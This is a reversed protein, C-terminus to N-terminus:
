NLDGNFEHLFECVAVTTEPVENSFITKKIPNMLSM